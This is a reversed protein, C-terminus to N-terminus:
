GTRQLTLQTCGKLFTCTCLYKGILVRNVTPEARNYKANRQKELSKRESAPVVSALLLSM